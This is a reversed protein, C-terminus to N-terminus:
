NSTLIQKLAAILKKAERRTNYHSLSIRLLGTQHHLHKHILPACHLGGRTCIHYNSSLQNVVENTDRNLLEIAIVGSHPNQSHLKMNPLKGLETLLFQTNKNIKQQISSFHKEVYSVGAGLAVINPTALTGSELGEPLDTPQEAQESKTGTGGFKIPQPTAGNVILVGLGQVGLLGKHGALALLNINQKQVHIREHGASQAGDVMFLLNKQKALNGIQTINSTAGTVNSTHNVCILYTNPTIAKEIASAAVEGKENPAVLTYTINKTQKLHNLCRLVSNHENLTSVIHKGEQVTGILALNLAETCSGTFVVQMPSAAGFHNALKLRTQYVQMGARTSLAHGSRGPNATYRFVSKVMAWKVSLPKKFSSAANDFYIM